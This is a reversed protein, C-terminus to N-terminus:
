SLRRTAVRGELYSKKLLPCVKYREDHTDNYLASLLSYVNGIGIENCWALPGKPYNTGLKMGLDIDAATATGEQITYFAENIIMCIIRPTVMGVRDDVVRVETRLDQCTKELAAHDNDMIVSAELLPRNFFTPLGNFGFIGSREKVKHLFFLERLSTCISNLFVASKTNVYSRLLEPHQLIAYDFVADYADYYASDSVAQRTFQIDHLDGFKLKFERHSEDDGIVLIKM